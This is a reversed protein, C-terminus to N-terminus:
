KSCVTYIQELRKFNNESGYKKLYLERIKESEYEKWSLVKDVLDNSSAINIKEGTVHDIILDSVNGFDSGIIPTGVSYAEVITMPFGEYWKTPLIIAKSNAIYQKAIANEVHGLMRISTLSNKSIFKKCWEYMPGTGCVILRPTEDKLNNELKKWADFLLDVGKLEDIRGVFVFQNKRQGYSIIKVNNDNVFNPKVFVNDANIQKLSILKEKNFDTLCIYNIKGYIRLARHIATNIVCILTQIKSNRYCNNKIACHLGDTLCKECICNKNYFTAGPCLLRFNHITQIVPIGKSKASYYVAPSILSLTNHVHVIDIKKESIIKRIDLYTKINFITTLPLLMKRIAKMFNIESNHRTYMYVKYGHRELLEKENSVVSDEGGPVQYYNHVILINKKM